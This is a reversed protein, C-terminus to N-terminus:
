KALWVEGLDAVGQGGPEFARVRGGIFVQRGFVILPLWHNRTQYGRARERLIGARSSDCPTNALAQQFDEVAQEGEIQAHMGLLQLELGRVLPLPRELRFDYRGELLRREYEQVALPVVFVSAGVDVLNVQIREAAVRDDPLDDRVIFELMAPLGMRQVALSKFFARAAAPDAALGPGAAGSASGYIVLIEDAARGHDGVLYNALSKRDIASDLARRFGEASQALRQPNVVLFLQQNHPSTVVRLEGSRRSPPRWSVDARGLEFALSADRASAYSRMVFRDLYPRGLCHGAFFVLELVAPDDDNVLRYPGAGDPHPDVQAAARLVRGPLIATPVAALATLFEPCPLQLRIRLTLKNIPELGSIRTLRGRRYGTAGRIPALLWWHASGNAARLLREWSGIVEHATVPTGDHFTADPRLQIVVETGSAGLEPVEQALAPSLSGDPELRFLTEHLQRAAWWESESRIRVPDTTLLSDLVPMELSGGYPKRASAGAGGALGALLVVALWCPLRSSVVGSRGM